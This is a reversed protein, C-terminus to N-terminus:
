WSFKETVIEVDRGEWLLNYGTTRVARVMADPGCVVVGTRGSEDVGVVSRIEEELDPRKGNPGKTTFSRVEVEMGAPLLGRKVRELQHLDMELWKLHHEYQVVWLLVVKTVGCGKGKSKRDMQRRVVECMLPWCAAIGSGGAVFVCRECERLADRAYDNGYGGDIIVDITVEREAMAHFDATFGELRRVVMVMEKDGGVTSRPDLDYGPPPCLITFPHAQLKSWGPVTLFVHSGPDWTLKRGARFDQVSVMVSSEDVAHIRATAHRRKRWARHVLRDIAWIALSTVVYPKASPSHFYLACMALASFGIHTALFFEYRKARVSDQSTINFLTFSLFAIAGALMDRRLFISLYSRGTPALFLRFVRYTWGVHLIAMFFCTSSVAMHFVLYQEYSWGTLTKVPSTKAALLYNLPQNATFLLGFRDALLFEKLESSLGADEACGVYIGYVALFVTVFFYGANALLIGNPPVVRGRGDKPRQYVLLARLRRGLLTYWATKRNSDDALFPKSEDAVDVDGSVHVSGSSSEGSMSSADAVGGSAEVLSERRQRKKKERAKRWRKLKRTVGRVAFVGVPFLVVAVNYVVGIRRSLRLADIVAGRGGVSVQASAVGGKEIFESVPGSLVVPGGNFVSSPWWMEDKGNASDAGREELSIRGATDQDTCRGSETCPSPFQCRYDTTAAHCAHLRPHQPPM